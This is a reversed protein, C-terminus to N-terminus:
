PIILTRFFVRNSGDMIRVYIYFRRFSSSTLEVLKVPVVIMPTPLNEFLWAM